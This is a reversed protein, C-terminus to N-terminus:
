PTGEKPIDIAVQDIIAQGEDRCKTLVAILWDLRDFGIVHRYHTKGSRSELDIAIFFPLGNTDIYGQRRPKVYQPNM